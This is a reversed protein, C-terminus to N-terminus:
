KLNRKPKDPNKVIITFGSWIIYETENKVTIEEFFIKSSRGLRIDAIISENAMSGENRKETIRAWSVPKYLYSIVLANKCEVKISKLHELKRSSITLVSDVVIEKKKGEISILCHCAGNGTKSQANALNPLLIIFLIVFAKNFSNKMKTFHMKAM